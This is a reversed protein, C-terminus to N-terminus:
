FGFIKERLADEYEKKAAIARNRMEEEHFHAKEWKDIEAVSHDVSALAEEERIAGIWAEVAAKYAAQKQDLESDEM